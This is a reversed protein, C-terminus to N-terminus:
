SIKAWSEDAWSAQCLKSVDHIHFWLLTQANLWRLWGNLGRFWLQKIACIQVLIEWQACRWGDDTIQLQYGAPSKPKDDLSLWLCIARPLFKIMETVYWQAFMRSTWQDSCSWIDYMGLYFIVVQLKVFHVQFVKLALSLLNQTQSSLLNFQKKHIGTINMVPVVCIVCDLMPLCCWAEGTFYWQLQLMNSAADHQSSILWFLHFILAYNHLSIMSLVKETTNQVEYHFWSEHNILVIARLETSFHCPVQSRHGWFWLRFILPPKWIARTVNYALYRHLPKVFAWLFDRVLRFKTWIPTMSLHSIKPVYLSNLDNQKFNTVVYVQGTIAKSVTHKPINM